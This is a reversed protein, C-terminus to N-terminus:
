HEGRLRRYEAAMQQRQEALVAAQRTVDAEIQQANRERDPHTAVPATLQKAPQVSKGGLAAVARSEAAPIDDLSLTRGGVLNLRVPYVGPTAAAVTTVDNWSVTSTRRWPRVIGKASVVTPRRFRHKVPVLFYFSYILLFYDPRPRTLTWMLLLLYVLGLVAIM